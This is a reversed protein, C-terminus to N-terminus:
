CPESGAVNGTGGTSHHGVNKTDEDISHQDVDVAASHSDPVVGTDV